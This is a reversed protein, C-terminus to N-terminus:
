FFYTMRLSGSTFHRVERGFNSTRTPAYSAYFLVRKGLPYTVTVRPTLSRFRRVQRKQPILNWEDRIFYALGTSVVFGFVRRKQVMLSLYHSTLEKNVQQAFISKFFTGNDQKELQYITNLSLTPSLRIAMSDSYILQRFLFSRAQPFLEDFDFVTYNALIKIQSTHVFGDGPRHQFSAGLQFIRNWSNNASRTFHIFIQHYLYVRGKLTLTFFPSFRHSYGTDIIFRQEDRDDHNVVTDPTNFEYKTYSFRTWWQHGEQWRHSLGLTLATQLADIDTQLNPNDRTTQSFLVGLHSKLGALPFQYHIQNELVLEQRRNELFPNTQDIDRDKFQTQVTLRSQPTVQYNLQNFLIRAHIVVQELANVGPSLPDAQALYYRNEAFQYGLRISDSAQESFHTSWGTFFNHEQNRRGPFARVVSNLDTYNLYGGMDLRNIKLGMRGYWGQDRLDYTEEVALGSAPLLHINRSLSIDAEAALVHKSFQVFSNQDSFVRSELRAGLRLRKSLPTGWQLQLQNEDKWKRDDRSERFLNSTFRNFVELGGRHWTATQWQLLGQWNWSVVDKELQLAFRPAQQAFLRGAVLVCFVILPMRYRM